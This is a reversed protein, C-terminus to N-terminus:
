KQQRFPQLKISNHNFFLFLKLIQHSLVLARNVRNAVHERFVGGLDVVEELFDEDSQPFSEVAELLAAAYPCPNVPM